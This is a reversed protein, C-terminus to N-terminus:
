RGMLCRSSSTMLLMGDARPYKLIFSIREMFAEGKRNQRNSTEAADNEVRMKLDKETILQLIGSPADICCILAVSDAMERRFAKCCSTVLFTNGNKRKASVVDEENGNASSGM